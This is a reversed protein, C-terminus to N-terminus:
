TYTIFNGYKRLFVSDAEAYLINWHGDRGLRLLIPYHYYMGAGGTAVLLAEVTGNRDFDGIKEVSLFDWWGDGLSTLPAEVKPGEGRNSSIWVLVTGRSTSCGATILWGKVGNANVETSEYVSLHKQGKFSDAWRQV